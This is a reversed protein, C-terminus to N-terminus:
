RGSMPSSPVADAPEPVAVPARERVKVGTTGIVGSGGDAAVPTTNSAANAPHLLSRRLVAQRYAPSSGDRISPQLFESSSFRSQRATRERKVDELKLCREFKLEL